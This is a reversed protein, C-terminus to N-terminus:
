PLARYFRRPGYCTIRFRGHIINCIYAILDERATISNSRFAPLCLKEESDSISCDPRSSVLYKVDILWSTRAYYWVQRDDISDYRVFM